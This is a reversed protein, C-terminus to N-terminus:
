RFRFVFRQRDRKWIAGDSIITLYWTEQALPRKPRLAEPRLVAVCGGPEPDRVSRYLILAIDAARAERAFEQTRAYEVPDTWVARRKEFPPAQLDIAAGQAGLQFVTQPLLQFKRCATATGRLGGDGIAWRRAHPAANLVRTCCVRTPGPAFVPAM